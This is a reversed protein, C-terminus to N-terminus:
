VRVPASAREAIPSLLEELRPTGIEELEYKARRVPYPLRIVHALDIPTGTVLVDPSVADITREPDQLHQLSYGV